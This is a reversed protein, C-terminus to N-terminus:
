RTLGSWFHHMITPIPLPASFLMAPVIWSYETSLLFDCIRAECQPPKTFTSLWVALPWSNVKM